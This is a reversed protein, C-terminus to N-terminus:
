PSHYIKGRLGPLITNILNRKSLYKEWWRTMNKHSWCLVNQYLYFYNRKDTWHEYYLLNMVDSVLTNLQSLMELSAKGVNKSTKWTKKKRKGSWMNQMNVIIIYVACFHFKEIFYKKLLYSCIQINQSISRIEGYENRICSFVSRFFNWIQVSKMCHQITKIFEKSM